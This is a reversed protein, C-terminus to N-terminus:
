GDLARPAGGKERQCTSGTGDDDEETGRVHLTSMGGPSFGGSGRVEWRSREVVFGWPRPFGLGLMGREGEAAVGEVKRWPDVM